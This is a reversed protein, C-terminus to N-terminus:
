VDIHFECNARPKAWISVGDMFQAIDLEVQEVIELM